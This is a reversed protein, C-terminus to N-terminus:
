DQGEAGMEAIEPARAAVRMPSPPVSPPVSPPQSSPQSPPHSPREDDQTAREFSPRPSSSGGPPTADGAGGGWRPAGGDRPTMYETSDKWGFDEDVLERMAQRLQERQEGLKTADGPRLALMLLPLLSRAVVLMQESILIYVYALLPLFFFVLLMTERQMELSLHAVHLAISGSLYTYLGWLVPVLVLAVLVKWTAAVDRGYIKVKSKALAQSAKFAAM